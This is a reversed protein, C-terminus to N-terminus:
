GPARPTTKLSLVLWEHPRHFDPAPSRLRAATHYHRPQGHITNANVVCGEPFGMPLLRRPVIARGSWREALITSSVEIEHPGDLLARVGRFRLLLYHAHPGLELETYEVGGEAERAVFLEVVEYNWLGPTSGAPSPPATDRHFPADTTVTLAEGDWALHVTAVLWPPVPEGNWSLETRLIM